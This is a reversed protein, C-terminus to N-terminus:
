IKKLQNFLIGELNEFKIKFGNKFLCDNSFTQDIKLFLKIM